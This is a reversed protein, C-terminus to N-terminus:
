AVAAPNIAKAVRQSAETLAQVFFSSNVEIITTFLDFAENAEFEEIQDVTADSALAALSVLDDLAEDGQALILRILDGEESVIAERYKALFGRVQRLHKLKFVRVNWDGKSEPVLIDLEEAASM